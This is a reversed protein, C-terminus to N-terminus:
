LQTGPCRRDGEISHKSLEAGIASPTKRQQNTNSGLPDAKNKRPTREDFDWDMAPQKKLVALTAPDIGPLRSCPAM